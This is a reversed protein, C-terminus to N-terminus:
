TNGGIVNIMEMNNKIDIAKIFYKSLAFYEHVKM